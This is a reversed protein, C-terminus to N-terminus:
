VRGPRGTSRYLCRNGPSRWREVRAILILAGPRWWGRVFAVSGLGVEHIILRPGGRPIIINQPITLDNMNISLFIAHSPLSSPHAPTFSLILQILSHPHHYHSFTITLSPVSYRIFQESPNFRSSLKSYTIFAPILPLYGGGWM